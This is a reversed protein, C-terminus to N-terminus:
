EAKEFRTRAPEVAFEERVLTVDGAGEARIVREVAGACRELDDNEIAYDFDGIAAFEERALELRKQVQDESDTGRGALRMRLTEFSPPLLFIMRVDERRERVQRAGQIEIELLVDLGAALQPEVSEWSTGYHNGNYIASEVFAGAEALRQFEEATVFHYDVGDTETERIARTTHSVSFLIGENRDVVRRCVTTKGTGSPAAVVFPIGRRKGSESM